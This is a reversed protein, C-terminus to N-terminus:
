ITTAQLIIDRAVSMGIGPINAIQEPTAFKFDAPKHYGNQFLMRARIRGVNKLATLELLEEKIGYRIRRRLKDITTSLKGYRMLEAIASAGYLLWQSSEVHRYIDGPGVNFMETLTEEKAEDVWKHLMWVTKLIAYFTYSDELVTIEEDSVILEDEIKYHFDELEEYDKKGVSLMESDPCCCALHLLGINSFNKGEHVKRLGERLTLASIPDIYLRSTRTGFPTAFYRFGSKEIFGQAHLFDFINSVMEIMNNGINQHILFTHNLFEFMGNVDQVYGAAVSALIHKRLTSENNLKSTVPETEAAIFDDFLRNQESLSKAMIIAEGHDDYQPRGARGACQKYESAPIYVSGMGSAYRKMDRIIARRAPLNVGAALTPTACIVKILNNRFNDEILERQSPKLGAHHFAVGRALCEGLAKCIKTSDSRGVAKKAIDSLKALEEDTLIQSIDKSINRACAQASRRSNVFVLSQGGSRITDLCLKAVDDSTREHLVRTTGNDFTITGDYFVGEELPIPRWTSFALKGGVWDALEKGNSITASLGLIQIGPNLQMLRAMVIEMTPGRSFDNIFHIEDMVLVSLTGQLWGASNRLLSDIKEATAIIIQYNSLHKGPSDHDGIALGVKIGLPRYKNRFENYKESALAKLPAIYLARGNNHLISNLMCLEAILTKGAATPVSMIVNNGDLVGQNIAEIQPPHLDTIGSAAYIDIANQPFKYKTLVDLLKMTNTQLM